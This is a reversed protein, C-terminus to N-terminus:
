MLQKTILQRRTECNSYIRSGVVKQLMKIGSRMEQMFHIIQRTSAGAPEYRLIDPILTQYFTIKIANVEVCRTKVKDFQLSNNGGGLFFMDACFNTLRADFGCATRGLAELDPTIHIFEKKDFM